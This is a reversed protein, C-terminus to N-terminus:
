MKELRRYAEAVKPYPWSSCDQGAQGVLKAFLRLDEETDVTLKAGQVLGEDGLINVYTVQDM